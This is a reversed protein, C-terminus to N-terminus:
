FYNIPLLTEKLCVLLMNFYIFLVVASLKWVVQLAELHTLSITQRNGKIHFM